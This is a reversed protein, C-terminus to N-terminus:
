IFFYMLYTFFAIYHSLYNLSSWKELTHQYSYGTEEQQSNSEFIVGLYALHIMTIATLFLNTLFVLPENQRHKHVCEFKCSRALICSNFINALKKRLMLEVYSYVGLSLLVASLQFSLGHLLASVTYTSIVAVFNGFRRSTNFIYVKLWNHMPINWYVVVNILSRPFEIFDPRSVSLEDINFTTTTYGSLISTVESLYSVFYHSTRFSLADRYSTFWKWSDDPIVYHCLCTSISLFLIALLFSTLIRRLWKFNWKPQRYISLYDNFSTWPGFICTGPCLMYGSYEVFEPINEITGIDLDFGLSVSKMVIIMQPGRIRHWEKADVLWIECIVLFVLSALILLAGRHKKYQFYTATLLLIYSIIVLSIIYFVTTSFFIHLSVLGTGLCIIHQINSPIQVVQTSLRFLFSWLMVHSITKLSEYLTPLLCMFIIQDFTMSTEKEDDYNSGYYYVDNDVPIENDYMDYDYDM